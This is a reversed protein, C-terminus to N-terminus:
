KQIDLDRESYSRSVGEVLQVLVTAHLLLAEVIPRAREKGTTDIGSAATEGVKVELGQKGKSGEKL